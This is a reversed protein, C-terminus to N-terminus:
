SRLLDRQSSDRLNEGGSSGWGGYWEVFKESLEQRM